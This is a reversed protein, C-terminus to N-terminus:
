IRLGAPMPMALYDANNSGVMVGPRLTRMQHETVSQAVVRGDLHTTLSIHIPQIHTDGNTHFAQKQVPPGPADKSYDHGVLGGTMRNVFKDLKGAGPIYKDILEAFDHGTLAQLAGTLIRDVAFGMAAKGAAEGALRLAPGLTTFGYKELIKGGFNLGGGAVGGLLLDTGGASLNDAVKPHAQAAKSLANLASTLGNLVSIADKFPAGGLVGMLNKLSGFFSEVAVQPSASLGKAVSGTDLKTYATNDRLSLALNRLLEGMFTGGPIRSAFQQMTASEIVRQKDPSADTFAKGYNKKDYDITRPLLTNFMFERPHFVAEEFAKENMAGPKLMFMGMGLKRVKSPDKSIIGMDRMMSVAAQSMKGSSFQQEFGSLGTGARAPGLAQIIPALFPLESVDMNAAATGGSRLFRLTTDSNIQGNSVVQMGLILDAIRRAGGADVEVKGTKADIKSLAGKFEASKITAELQQDYTGADPNFTQMAVGAPLFSGMLAKAENANQTLAFLQRYVEINGQVNTGPTSRQLERAQAIAADAENATNNALLQARSKALDYAPAMLAGAAQGYMQGDFILAAATGAAHGLSPTPNAGGPAGGGGGAPGRPTEVRPISRVAASVEKAAATARGAAAAIDNMGGATDRLSTIAKEPMSFERLSRLLSRLNKLGSLSGDIGEFSKKVQDTLTILERFGRSLNALIEPANTKWLYEGQVSFVETAM